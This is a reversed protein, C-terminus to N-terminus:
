AKAWLVAIEAEIEARAEPQLSYSPWTRGQADQRSPPTFTLRGDASQEVKLGTLNVWPLRIEAYGFKPSVRRLTVREITCAPNM